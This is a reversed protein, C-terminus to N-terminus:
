SSSGQGPEEIQLIQNEPKIPDIRQYVMEPFGSGYKCLAFLLSLNREQPSNDPMLIDALKTLRSRRISQKEKLSNAYKQYLGAFQQFFRTSFSDVTQGLAPSVKAFDNKLEKFVAEFKGTSLEQSQKTQKEIENDAEHLLDPNILVEAADLATESLLRRTRADIATFHPRPAILPMSLGFLPYLAATQALYSLEAPGGIYVATPFLSDQVIPRLLASPSFLEPKSEALAVIEPLSVRPTEQSGVTEGLNKELTCINEKVLLRSRPGNKGQPHYFCLPSNLKLPVQPLYGALSLEESRKLLLQEVKQFNNLARAFIKPRPDETNNSPESDLKTPDFFLIGLQNTCINLVERFSDRASTAQSLGPELKDFIQQTYPLWALSSKLESITNAFPTQFQRFAASIRSEDNGLDVDFRKPTGEASLYNIHNIERVSHDETQLWFIPVVPTNNLQELYTAWRATALCKYLVMLPGGLLAAQQGSVAATVGPQSLKNLTLEVASSRQKNQQELNSRVFASFGKKNQRLMIERTDDASNFALSLFQNLAKPNARYDKSFSRM